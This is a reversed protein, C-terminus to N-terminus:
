QLRNIDFKKRTGLKVLKADIKLKAETKTMGEVRAILKGGTSFRGEYLNAGKNKARKISAALAAKKAHATGRSFPSTFFLEASM